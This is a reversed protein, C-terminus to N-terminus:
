ALENPAQVAKDLVRDLEELNIEIQERSRKM